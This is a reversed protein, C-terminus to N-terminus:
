TGKYNLYQHPAKVVMTNGLTMIAFDYLSEDNKPV